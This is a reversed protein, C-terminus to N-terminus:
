VWDGYRKPSHRQRASRRPLIDGVDVPVMIQEENTPTPLATQQDPLTSMPLHPKIILLPRLHIRNRLSIRGSGTMKITYQRHEGVDIVVGSRDWKRNRTNQCLVESGISLPKLNKIGKNDYSEKMTINSKEISLERARLYFEWQASVKYGSSPQPVSDRLKRGLLLQAPSKNCGQLPTNRYQLLAKAMKDTNLKGQIGTNGRILRKMSKVALEARGNSQPYYASSKRWKTAWQKLFTTIETSSINPGGDMALEEPVGFQQFFSRFADKIASSNPTVSFYVIEVWGTFRDAYILYEHGNSSFLDSVVHQFPYQPIPSPILEEHSQSKANEQCHRCTNCSRTVDKTIGPWYVCQRTRRLIQDVGQHASHLNQTVKHRLKTPIVLRAEGEGFTYMLLDDVVSLRHRINFFPKIVSSEYKRDTAFSNNKVKRLLVQYEEDENAVSSLEDLGIAIMESAITAVMLSATELESQWLADDKDPRNAPYRSLTDTANMKTGPIHRITFSFELTKQKMRILRPNAISALSKDSFISVLPKHDTLLLFHQCGLLLNRAKHLCWAVALAEGEIPAYNKEASQLHRSNCLVIKWGESCCFPASDQTCACHQQFITFAIGQQSWDTMVLLPKGLNFYTLGKSAEQCIIDKSKEYSSKLQADWYVTKNNGPKLLERFPEMTKSSAFFPALQNVLGFWARIDTITPVSPMPFDRISSLTNRSPFFKDWGLTYGCFDVTKKGFKFKTPNLTIGNMACTCLLDFAHFFAETINDDYLLTDDVLRCKRPVDILIEDVRRNYADGASCLGQPTRLYRFRGFESIFTTLKSSNEDLLVQHYGNYADVVTKYSYLPVTSVLHFPYSNPHTERLCQKNLEQFDVTIRPTGDKKKVTVMRTCWEVPDGVPVKELIGLKVDRQIINEVADKWHHPIPIPSHVAYPVADEQIHIHQPKGLMVPLPYANVNFTSNSFAELLWKELREINEDSPSFPMGKPRVPLSTDMNNNVTNISPARKGAPQGRDVDQSTDLEEQEERASESGIVCPFNPHVLHLSKCASVSLFIDNIGSIFYVEEVTSFEGITFSLICSGIVSIPGGAVHKLIHKPHNLREAKIGLQSLYADGVVTVEAGTDPVVNVMQPNKVFGDGVSLLLRPLKKQSNSCALVISGIRLASVQDTQSSTTGNRHSTSQRCVRSFHGKKGCKICSKDMAPCKKKNGHSPYGCYNCNKNSASSSSYQKDRKYASLAAVIEEEALDHSDLHLTNIFSFENQTRLVDRDHKTSEFNECYQLLGDVTKLTDHKQLVEQQLVDDFIGTRIRNIIHYDTLDHSEDYPCTFACDLACVRLNTIFERISEEKRQVMSDFQKRYVSPNSTEYVINKIITLAEDLTSTSWSPHNTDIIRKMDPDMHLRLQSVIQYNTFGTLNKFANCDNEYTRYETPSMKYSGEPVKVNKINVAPQTGSPNLTNQLQQIQQLLALKERLAANEDPHAVADAVADGTNSM